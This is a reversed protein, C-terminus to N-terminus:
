MPTQYVVQFELSKYPLRVRDGNRCYPPIINNNLRKEWVNENKLDVKDDLIVAEATLDEFVSIVNLEVEPLIVCPKTDGHYEEM